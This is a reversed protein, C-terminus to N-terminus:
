SPMAHQFCLGYGDPDHLYLQRMGYPAVRPGECAIGAGRLHAALADLEQCGIYITTDDHAAWRAPDPAPPRTEREYATNLMLEVGGLRLWCWDCWEGPPAWQVVAFGLVGRYFALARPMDFVQLLAVGGAVQLKM